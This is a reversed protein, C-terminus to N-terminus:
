EVNNKRHKRSSVVCNFDVNKILKGKCEKRLANKSIVASDIYNRMLALIQGNRNQTLNTIKM